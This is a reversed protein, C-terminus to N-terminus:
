GIFIGALPRAKESKHCDQRRTSNQEQNALKVTAANVVAQAAM